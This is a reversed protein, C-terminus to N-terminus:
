AFEISTKSQKSIYVELCEILLKAGRPVQSELSDFNQIKIIEPLEVDRICEDFADWNSGYYDPFRFMKFLYDHLAKEDHIGAFDLNIETSNNMEKRSGVTHANHPKL